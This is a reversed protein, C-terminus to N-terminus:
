NMALAPSNTNAIRQILKDLSSHAIEFAFAARFTKLISLGEVRVDVMKSSDETTRFVYDIQLPTSGNRLDLKTNVTQYLKNDVEKKPIVTVTANSYEVLNAGYSRILMQKFENTFTARQSETATKWHKALIFKSMREVDCIPLIIEDVLENIKNPNERIAEKDRKLTELVLTTTQEVIEQPSQQQAYSICPFLFLFVVIYAKINM